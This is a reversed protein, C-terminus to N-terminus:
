QAPRESACEVPDSPDLSTNLATFTIDFQKSAVTTGSGAKFVLNLELQQFNVASTAKGFWFPTAAGTRPPKAQGSPPDVNTALTTWAGTPAGSRPWAQRQLQRAAVQLRLAVCQPKGEDNKVAYEVYWDGSKVQGEAHIGSAYRVERELRLVALNLQAQATTVAETGHASRFMQVVGATFMAMFLSMITMAVVVEILTIGADAGADRGAEAAAARGPNGAANRGPDGAANRGPDGAANRGPNGAARLRGIRHRAAEGPRV